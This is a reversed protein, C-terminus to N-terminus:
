GYTVYFSKFEGTFDEWSHEARDVRSGEPGKKCWALLEELAEREGEALIEVSGDRMNKVWGTIGLSFAKEETSSRFFVGQVIGYVQIHLRAKAM